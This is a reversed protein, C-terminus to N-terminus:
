DALPTGEDCEDRVADDEISKTYDPQPHKPIQISPQHDIILQWILEALPNSKPESLNESVTEAAVNVRTVVIQRRVYDIRMETGWEKKAGPKGQDLVQLIVKWDKSTELQGKTVTVSETAKNKVKEAKNQNTEAAQVTMEQSTIGIAIIALLVTLLKKM